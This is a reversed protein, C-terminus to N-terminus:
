IYIAIVDANHIDGKIHDSTAITTLIMFHLMVLRVQSQVITLKLYTCSVRTM